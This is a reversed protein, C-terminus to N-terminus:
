HHAWPVLAQGFIYVYNAPKRRNHKNTLKFESLEEFRLITVSSNRGCSCNNPPKIKKKWKRKYQKLYAAFLSKDSNKFNNEIKTELYLSNIHFLKTTIKKM